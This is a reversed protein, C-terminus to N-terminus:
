NHTTPCGDTNQQAAADEYSKTYKYPDASSESHQDSDASPAAFQNSHAIRDAYNFFCSGREAGAKPSTYQDSSNLYSLCRDNTYHICHHYSLSFQQACSYQFSLDYTHDLTSSIGRCNPCCCHECECNRTRHHESAAFSRLHEPKRSRHRCHYM